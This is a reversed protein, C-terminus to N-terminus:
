GDDDYGLEGDGYTAASSAYIFRIDNDVAFHALEKTYEYNNKILYSADRETTASCAGMHIIGDIRDAAEDAHILDLLEEKELYDTYELARLNKWKDSTGLHDVVLIDTIGRQNLGWIVSSGILGAGGTVIYM